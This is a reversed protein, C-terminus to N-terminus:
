FDVRLGAAITRVPPGTQFDPDIGADNAKWLLGLNNAYVYLQARAFPLQPINTFDYSINVDQLRIHDGKEVLAESYLYLNDRAFSASAPMSPVNTLLEDGPKQWRLYYDGHGGKGTLVSSYNVSARRFYYGLRYSINASFSLNKWSFTNRLAGFTVPRSPGHHVMTEPATGSIIQAYSTSVEGNVYGQPNGNQPNLGAWRYSYISYLPKGELPFVSGESFQVYNSASAKVKYDTVKDAAYSFLFNTQWSFNGQINRSNLVLDVGQGKTDATNGRFSTIGTSPPFPTDGILDTGKKRYYDISGNLVNNRTGFDIGMNLMGVREWRLEPNPPNIITAYPLFTQYAGTTYRATTYASISKSINGNYGYTVRMKLYPLFSFKYFDEDSLVYSVGASWLPVSRQNSQVGFLNSKDIRASASITYRGKYTYAANAYYSLYRDILDSRSDNNTITRFSSPNVYSAFRTVYDVPIATAHETDYGYLRSTANVMHMDRLEAGILASVQNLKWNRNYNLQGRVNHATTTGGTLDLIGGEPVARTLVGNVLSTFMNIENRTYYSDESQLNRGESFNRQYQYLAEAQLGPLIKYRLGANVRYDTGTSTNDALELDQLPSYKWDLLEPQQALATEIYGSRYDRITSMYGGSGDTLRAYPYLSSGPVLVLSNPGGNNLDRQSNVYYLGTTLELKQKLLSYSSNANLSVRSYGNRRLNDLNRNFGASVYYRQNGAGGSLSLSHQRNVSNRYLYKEFDNRVDLQKWAELQTNAAAASVQGDRQAILLEVAPTLATKFLSSETSNYYGRNFLMRETEIFDATSMRPQYFLDPKEGVTVNTNFTVKPTGTLKGKKTTIVIVGNGARSGWISAAAADKLVTVSAVDNPNINDLDGDYPFNDIVILPRANAYLTSQGRISIDSGGKRNFVLGPVVDELRSLLDTSVRRNLLKEDALTFSGTAREKPVSQYGTSVVVEKLSHEDEDLSIVLLSGHPLQVKQEKTKYGIFSVQFTVEPDSATLTFRGLSDASVGSTSGKIKVAAGPLPNGDGASIVKGTIRTQARCMGHLSLLILTYFLLRKM